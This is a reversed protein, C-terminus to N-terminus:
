TSVQEMVAARQKIGLFRILLSPILAGPVVIFLVWGLHNLAAGGHGGLLYLPGAITIGIWAGIHGLGDTWGFAVARFRTPFSMATYNYMNFLWLSGGIGAFTYFLAMVPKSPFFYIIGWGVAFMAGVILIVDRREFREGLRANALFGLFRFVGAITILLFVFHADAGHAVMYVAAFAGVGYVIGPYGLLWSILLVITRQRYEPNLFLEKWAGKEAVVVPHFNEDPEPLPQGYAQECRAELKELTREAEEHRGHAELWRPSEPLRWLLLPFMIFVLAAVVWVYAQWHVPIWFFALLGIVVGVLATTSQASLLLQNRANPGILESIYVSHLAVIAGVGLTSFVSLAVLPWFSTVYAFPWLFVGGLVAALVIGVKRGYRDAIWSMIWDGVLVGLGVELAQIVSYQFVSVYHHPAWIFPYLRGAIGDTDVIILGWTLEVLIAIEWQVRTLPLRDVRAAM